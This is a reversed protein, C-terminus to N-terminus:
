TCNNHKCCATMALLWYPKVFIPWFLQPTAM